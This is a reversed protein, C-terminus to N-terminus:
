HVPVESALLVPRPSSGSSSPQEAALAYCTRLGPCSIAWVALTGGPLRSASWSRGRNASSLVVGSTGVLQSGKASRGGSLWCQSTTPCALDTFFSKSAALGQSPKSSWSEGGDGSVVLRAAPGPGPWSLAVCNKPTACSFLEATPWGPFVRSVSWKLGNDKSFELGFSGSNVGEYVCEGTTFCQMEHPVFTLPSSSSWTRGGNMTVFAIASGQGGDGGPSYAGVTCSSASRCSLAPGQELTYHAHHPGALNLKMYPGWSVGSLTAPRARWTTGGDTTEVLLANKDSRAEILACVRASPCSVNSLPKAGSLGSVHWTKGGNGSSELGLYPADVYCTTTSPCILGQEFAGLM